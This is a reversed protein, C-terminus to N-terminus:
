SLATADLCIQSALFIFLFFQPLTTVTRPDGCWVGALVQHCPGEPIHPRVITGSCIIFGPEKKQM